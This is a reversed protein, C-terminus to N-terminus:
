VLATILWGTGNSVITVCEYQAGLVFTAAGNITEAANGDLTVANVSSDTKQVIFQFGKYQAAAPLTVTIAGGAADALVLSEGLELTHASTIPVVNVAGNLLGNLADAVLREWDPTKYPPVYKPITV